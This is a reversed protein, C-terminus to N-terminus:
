RWYASSTMLTLVIAAGFGGAIDTAIRRRGLTEMPVRPSNARRRCPLSFSFFSAFIISPIICLTHDQHLLRDSSRRRSSARRLRGQLRRGVEPRQGPPSRSRSGSGAWPSSCGSSALGRPESCSPAHLEVQVALRDGLGRRRRRPDHAHDVVMPGINKWYPTLQLEGAEGHQGAPRQHPRGSPPLPPPREMTM